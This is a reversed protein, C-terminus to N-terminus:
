VKKVQLTILSTSECENVNGNNERKRILGTYLKVMYNMIFHKYYRMFLLMIYAWMKGSSVKPKATTTTTDNSNNETANFSINNIHCRSLTFFQCVIEVHKAVEVSHFNWLFLNGRIVLFSPVPVLVSDNRLLWLQFITFKRSAKIENAYAIKLWSLKNNNCYSKHKKRM